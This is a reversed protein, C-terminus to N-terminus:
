HEIHLVKLVTHAFKKINVIWRPCRYKMKLNYFWKLDDPCEDYTYTKRIKKQIYNYGGYRYKVRYKKQLEYMMRARVEDNYLDFGYDAPNEGEAIIALMSRYCKECDCCNYGKIDHYCVRLPIGRGIKKSYECIGHVKSQRDTSFADHIGRADVFRIYDDIIPDSSCTYNGIDDPTNSSAMYFGTIGLFYALPAMHGFFTPGYMFHEYWNSSPETQRIYTDLAPKNPVVSFNTKVTQLELSFMDAVKRSHAYVAKWGEENDAPMDAGWITVLVPKEEIHSVLTFAADVGGSFFVAAKEDPVASHNEALRNYMIKGGLSFKPHLEAFGKKFEPISEYFAKDIEDVYLVADFVWLMSIINSVFPIVAVSRPLSDVPFDYEAYMIHPEAFYNVWEDSGSVGYEVTIRKGEVTLKKIEAKNM